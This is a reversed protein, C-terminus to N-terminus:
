VNFSLRDILNEAKEKLNKNDYKIVEEKSWKTYGEKLKVRIAVTTGDLDGLAPYLFETETTTYIKNNIKVEYGICESYTVWQIKLQGDSRKISLIKPCTDVVAEDNNITIRSEKEIVTAHVVNTSIMNFIFILFVVYSIRQNKIKM